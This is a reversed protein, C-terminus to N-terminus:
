DSVMASITFASPRTYDSIRLSQVAKIMCLYSLRDPDQLDRIVAKSRSVAHSAISLLSYFTALWSLDATMPALWYLDVEERFTPWHILLLTWRTYADSTLTELLAEAVSRAVFLDRVESATVDSHESFLLQPGPSRTKVHFETFVEFSNPYTDLAGQGIETIKEM